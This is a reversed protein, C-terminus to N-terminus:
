WPYFPNYGKNQLSLMRFKPLSKPLKLLKHQLILAEMRYYQGQWHDPV